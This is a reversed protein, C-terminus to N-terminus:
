WRGTSDGGATKNHWRELWGGQHRTSIDGKATDGCLREGGHLQVIEERGNGMSDGGVTKCQWKVGSDIAATDKEATELKERGRSGPM